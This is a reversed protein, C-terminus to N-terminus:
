PRWQDHPNFGCVHYKKGRSTSEDNPTIRKTQKQAAILLHQLKGEKLAREIGLRLSICNNTSHGSDKHYEYYLTLDQNKKFKMPQAPRLFQADTQLVERPSKNIETWNRDRSEKKSARQERQANITARVEPQYSRPVYPKSDNGRNWTDRNCNNNCKADQRSSQGQAHPQAKFAHPKLSRQTQTYMKVAAIVDDWKEPLGEKGSLTMVMEDDKVVRIFHNRAMQDAIGGIELCEKNYRIVFSELSENEGRWINIVDMSDRKHRRQQSFHAIFKAQLQEFSALAGAPLSDFWARALGTLTQPFFHCWTAEEWEGNCGAGTFINM